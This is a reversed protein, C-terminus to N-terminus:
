VELNIIRDLRLGAKEIRDCSDSCEGIAEYIHADSGIYFDVKYRSATKIEQVNLHRHSNNIELATHTKEAAQALREIDVPVKDGPHTIIDIDYNEMAKILANTNVKEMYKRLPGIYRAFFNFIFFRMNGWLGKFVVGYHIGLQVVQCNDVVVQSIDTHGDYSTLNAEIGMKINIEPYKERLVEIEKRVKIINKESTGYLFHKIGHDSVAIEKLGKEIATKVIEELESKCHGNKSYKSHIHYDSNLKM